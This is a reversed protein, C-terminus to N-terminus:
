WNGEILDKAALKAKEGDVLGVVIALVYCTQSEFFSRCTVPKKGINL